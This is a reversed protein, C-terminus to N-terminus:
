ANAAEPQAFQGGKRYPWMYTPLVGELATPQVGLAALGPLGAEAVNDTKLLEVQDRTLVPPFPLVAAGIDGLTGIAAALGFPLPVLARKRQTEKLMLEMLSKFSYTAPGGLEYVPAPAKLNLAATVAAGVDGAYVPQFRTKGGGVLPLVPAMTAMAAFKNFFEDEEGFVVSPRVIVADPFAARVAAEGEAKTRAYASASDKDAGIASIHVLRACGAKAAAEAITRAAEVHLAGFSQPGKSYLVGVLNVAAAAGVLAAEVTPAARVNAQVIEVQGVDGMVRLEHALHPRRVAVRIRWGDKALARVVYRGLFGSGGFVTVLKQM